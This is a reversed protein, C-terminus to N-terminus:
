LSDSDLGVEIFRERIADIHKRVTHWSLDLHIAIENISQGQALADCIRQSVECLTSRATAVDALRSIQSEVDSGHTNGALDSPMNESGTVHEAYRSKTRKFNRLQRDIIATIATQSSAGNSRQPDFQFDVLVMLIQQQVDEIDQKRLGMRRARSDIWKCIAKNTPRKFASDSM